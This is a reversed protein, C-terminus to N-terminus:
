LVVVGMAAALREYEEALKALRETDVAATLTARRVQAQYFVKDVDHLLQQVELMTTYFATRQQTRQERQRRKINAELAAVNNNALLLADDGSRSAASASEDDIACDSRDVSDEHQSGAQSGDHSFVSSAADEKEAIGDDQHQREAFPSGAASADEDNNDEDHSTAFYEDDGQDDDASPMGDGARGRGDDAPDDDGGDDDSDSQGGNADGGLEAGCLTETLEQLQRYQVSLQASVDKEVRILKQMILWRRRNADSVGVHLDAKTVMRATVGPDFLSMACVDEVTLLADPGIQRKIARLRDLLYLGRM